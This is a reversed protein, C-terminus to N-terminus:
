DVYGVHCIYTSCSLFELLLSSITCHMHLFFMPLSASLWSRQAFHLHKLDICFTLFYIYMVGISNLLPSVPHFPNQEMGNLPTALLTIKSLCLIFIFQVPFVNYPMVSESFRLHIALSTYQLIWFMLTPWQHRTCAVLSIKSNLGKFNLKANIKASFVKYAISNTDHTYTCFVTFLRATVVLESWTLTLM